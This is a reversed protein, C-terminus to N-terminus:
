TYAVAGADRDMALAQLHEVEPGHRDLYVRPLVYRLFLDAHPSMDGTEALRSPRDVLDWIYENPHSWPSIFILGRVLLPQEPCSEHRYGGGHIYRGLISSGGSAM